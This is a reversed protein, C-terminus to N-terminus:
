DLYYIKRFYWEASFLCLSLLLLLMSDWLSIKVNIPAKHRNKYLDAMIQDAQEATYFGGGTNKSIKELLTKNLGSNHFELQPKIIRLEVPRASYQAPLAIKLTGPTEPMYEAKYIGPRNAVSNMDVQKDVGNENVTMKIQDTIVPSYDPNCVKARFGIKEGSYCTEKGVFITSQASENLLHPLGLFQVAKSWFDRFYRDGFEKRWRWTSDFGMFLVTGKGYSHFVIAPYKQRGSGTALAVLNIASPKPRGSTYCNYIPPLGSWIKKNEDKNGSFAVLQHSSGDDTVEFRMEDKLVDFMENKYSRGTRETITLPMMEELPTAKFSYPISVMDAIVALSGGQEEVFKRISQQFEPPLAIADLKSIFIIDYSKGLDKKDPLSALLSLRDSGKKFLRKDAMALWAKVDVRKDRELAGMLYRYEWSPTGFLLLIKIKEDIVRVNKIYINNETTVEGPMSSVEVKLQYTGKTRPVYEVPFSIEGDKDLKHRGTYVSKDGLYLKLETDDGTYGNQNVNVYIKAKENLFVVDEGLIYEASIDKSREKGLGCAYVPIGLKQFLKLANEPDEPSNHAGDTLLIIGPCYEGKQKEIGKELMQNISTYEADALIKDPNEIDKFDKGASFGEIKIEKRYRTNDKIAKFVEAAKAFRTKENDDKIQMSESSDLVVSVTGPLAGEGEISLKPFSLILLLSIYALSRLTILIAKKRRNLGKERSYHYFCLGIIAVAIFPLLWTSIWSEIRIHHLYSIYRANGADLLDM